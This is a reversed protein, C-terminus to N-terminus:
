FALLHGIPSRLEGLDLILCCDTLGPVRALVVRADRVQVIYTPWGDILWLGLIHAGGAQLFAILLSEVALLSSLVM